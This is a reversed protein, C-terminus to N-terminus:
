FRTNWPTFIGQQVNLNSELPITNDKFFQTESLLKGSKNIFNLIMKTYPIDYPYTLNNLIKADTNM